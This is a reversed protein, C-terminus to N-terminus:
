TSKRRGAASSLHSQFHNQILQNVRDAEEHQVWHTAQELLVLKGKQCRELSLQALKRELFQDRAGWIILTPISILGSSSRATLGRRAARYWNLMATFAGPKSWAERYCSLDQSSFTGPRSTSVLASTLAQWSCCGLLFEPLRPLQFFLMYWSKLLQRPNRRLQRAVVTPHPVNLIVQRAIRQPYNAALHWAVAAGWDHGVILAQERGAADMLGLVDQALQDIGYAEIGRPKESRNYGRQDPALVRFGADALYPIQKRWGYWFEPFGHLLIVLSGTTPGAAATHLQLDNVTIQFHKM